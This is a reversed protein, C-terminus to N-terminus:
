EVYKVIEIKQKGSYRMLSLLLYVKAKNLDKNNQALEMWKQWNNGIYLLEARNLENWNSPLSVTLSSGNPRNLKFSNM